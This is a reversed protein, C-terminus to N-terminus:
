GVTFTTNSASTIAPAVTSTKFTVVVSSETVSSVTTGTATYSGASVMIQDEFYSDDVNLPDSQELRGTSAGSAKYGAGGSRKTDALGFVLDTSTTTTAKSRWNTVPNNQNRVIGCVDLVSGSRPM